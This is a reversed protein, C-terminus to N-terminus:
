DTESKKGVDLFIHNCLNIMNVGLCGLLASLFERVGVVKVFEFICIAEHNSGGRRWPYRVKGM